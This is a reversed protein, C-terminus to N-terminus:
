GADSRAFSSTMSTRSPRISQGLGTEVEQGPAGPQVQGAPFVDVDEGVASAGSFVGNVAMLGRGTSRAAWSARRRSRSSRHRRRERRIWKMRLASGAAMM